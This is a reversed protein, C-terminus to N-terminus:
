GGRGVVSMGLSYILCKSIMFTYVLCVLREKYWHPPPPPPPPPLAFVAMESEVEKHEHKVKCTYNYTYLDEERVMRISVVHKDSERVEVQDVEAPLQEVQGGDRKQKNWTFRVLPPYMNSAVCMLSGGGVESATAKGTYLTLQPEKPEQPQEKDNPDIVYLRTGSGFILYHESSSTEGVTFFVRVFVQGNSLDIRLIVRFPEQGTTQYWYVHKKECQDAKECELSVVEGTTRTQSFQKQILEAAMSVLVSTLCCLAAAPISTM